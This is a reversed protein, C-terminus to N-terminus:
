RVRRARLVADEIDIEEGTEPHAQSRPRSECVEVEWSDDLAPILQDATHMFSHHGHRLGTHVDSPAHGVVLLTGGPAVASALRRVVDVMGGDPLHVFHSTVLDWTEGGPEFTRVDIRRTEVRDGVGADVAHEAVRELAADAFDSATVQWGHQALWLADGGEGCGVDLARGPELDAAEAELQVNVRGSWVRDGSYRGEWAPQEFFDDRLTQVATTADANALEANIWAGVRTGHAASAVLIMAIDTANGAAFIGPVTTAGTSPEVEIVSGFAIGNMEFPKPEIGVPGLFDARVHPKSAVVIADRELVTGDALRLGVLDDGDTVVEQPTGHAFRVGIAGLKETEEPPLEVGDHVVVVVDDSLQRFLLAQHAAMPTTALVAIAQDRVEWGHCYPCHLVDVGWREALGPVDPLEDVVGGTVLVRRAGYRRGGETTVLFSDAAGSLGVVRDTLVEVGYAAVEARGDELLQLPPVGERGLYNHAHAAPANRPEGADIVLVSRRSRGLAMAGSLGAAGGGIVVVDYTENESM